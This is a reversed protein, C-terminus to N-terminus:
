GKAEKVVKTRALYDHICRRSPGFIFLMDLTQYAKGAFPVPHLLFAPLQRVLLLRLVGPKRDDLGVIKIGMVMKGFSQGYKHLHYFNIAVYAIFGFVALSILM